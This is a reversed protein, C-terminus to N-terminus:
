KYGMLKDARHQAARRWLMLLAAVVVPGAALAAAGYFMSWLQYAQSHSMQGGALYGLLGGFGVGLVALVFFVKIATGLRELGAVSMAKQRPHKARYEEARAIEFEEEAVTQYATVIRQNWDMEQFGIVLARSEDWGAVVGATVIEDGIKPLAKSKPWSYLLAKHADLEPDVPRQRIASYGQPIPIAQVLQPARRRAM